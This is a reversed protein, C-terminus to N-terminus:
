PGDMSTEAAIWTSARGNTTRARRSCEGESGMSASEGATAQDPRPPGDRLIPRRDRALEELLTVAHALPPLSAMEAAFAQANRRYAPDGMVERLRSRIVAPARESRRVVLGLGLAQVREATFFQDGGIPVVVLPVGMSLAEKTSNFGGHTVFASCEALVALQPVFPELRVNSPLAGFRGAEADSGIVVVTEIPESAVAQVISELLGAERYMLTGLSALVLPGRRAQDLWDPRHEGKRVPHEYRIFHATPPPQSTGEWRPPTLAFHLYRFMMQGDPDPPLGIEARRDSLVRRFLRPRDDLSGMSGTAVSAHPLGVSEAILCGAYDTSERVVVDPSWDLVAKRVAPILRQPARAGFVTRQTWLMRRRGAPPAGQLLEEFTFPEAPFLRLGVAAAQEAFAPSTVIATEHGAERAAQALPLLSNFHGVAPLSTFLM